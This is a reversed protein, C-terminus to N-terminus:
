ADIPFSTWPMGRGNNADIFWQGAPKRAWNSRHLGTSRGGPRDQVHWNSFCKIAPRVACQNWLQELFAKQSPEGFIASPRGTETIMLPESGSRAGIARDIEAVARSVLQNPWDESYYDTTRSKGYPHIGIADFYQAYNIGSGAGGDATGYLSRIYNSADRRPGLGAGDSGFALGGVVIAAQLYQKIGTRAPKLVNGVYDYPSIPPVVVVDNEKYPVNPENWIEFQDIGRGYAGWQWSAIQAIGACFSQWQNRSWDDNPYRPWHGPPRGEWSWHMIPLLTIDRRACEDMRPHYRSPGGLDLRADMSCRLHVGQAACFDLTEAPVGALDPSLDGV